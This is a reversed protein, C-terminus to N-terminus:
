RSQVVAHVGLVAGPFHPDVVSGPRFTTEVVRALGGNNPLEPDIMAILSSLRLGARAAAPHQDSGASSRRLRQLRLAIRDGRKEIRVHYRM